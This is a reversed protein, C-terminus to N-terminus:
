KKYQLLSTGGYEYELTFNSNKSKYSFKVDVNGFYAGYFPENEFEAGYFHLEYQGVDAGRDDVEYGKIKSEVAIIKFKSKSSPISREGVETINGKADVEITPNEVLMHVRILGMPFEATKTIRMTMTYYNGYVGPEIESIYPMQPADPNDKDKPLFNLDLYHADTISEINNIVVRDAEKDLVTIIIEESDAYVSGKAIFKYEGAKLPTFESGELDKNGMVDFIKMGRLQEKNFDFVKFVVSTGVIVREKNPELTLQSKNKDVVNVDVLNTDIYGKKTAYIKYRGAKDFIFKSSIVKGNAKLEGDIENGNVDKITFVVQEGLLIEDNSVELKLSEFKRGSNDNNSDDSSCGALVFLLMFLYGIKRM